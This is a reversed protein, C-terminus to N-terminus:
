VWKAWRKPLLVISENGLMKISVFQHQSAKLYRLVCLIKHKIGNGTSTKIVDFSGLLLREDFFFV